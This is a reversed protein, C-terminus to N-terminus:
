IALRRVARARCKGGKHWDDQDGDGFYQCWACASGSAHQECSWYTHDGFEHQLNAFLVRQEKRLPAAFDRHGDAECQQCAALSATWDFEGKIEPGLILHYQSARDASLMVGAYIGGQGQWYEGVRPVATTAAVIPQSANFRELAMRIIQAEAIQITIGNQTINM